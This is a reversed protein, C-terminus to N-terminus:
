PASDYRTNYSPRPMTKAVCQNYLDIRLIPRKDFANTHGEIVVNLALEPPKANLVYVIKDVILVTILNTKCDVYNPGTLWNDDWIKALPNFNTM